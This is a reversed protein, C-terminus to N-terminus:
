TTILKIYSLGSQDNEQQMKVHLRWCPLQTYNNELKTVFIM